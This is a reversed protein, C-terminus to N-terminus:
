HVPSPASPNTVFRALESYFTKHNFGLATSGLLQGVEDLHDAPITGLFTGHRASAVSVLGDNPGWLSLIGYGAWLLPDCVDETFWHITAAKTVGAVSYYSVRADNPTSPNFVTDAYEETLEYAQGEADQGGGLVFNILFDLLSVAGGPLLGLAVDAVRSGRHPTSITTLTAVRNGFGLRSILYRGDLGGQSHGILHVRPAGTSALIASIQTALQAARVEVRQFPDVQTVHVQYGDNRLRDKVGYFYEIPGIQDFGAMGHLLVIPLRTRNSQATAALTQTEADGEEEVAAEALCGALLLTVLALSVLSKRGVQKM